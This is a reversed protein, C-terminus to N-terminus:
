GTVYTACLRQESEVRPTGRPGGRVIDVVKPREVEIAQGIEDVLKEPRFIM